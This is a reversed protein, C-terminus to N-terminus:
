LNKQLYIFIVQFGGYDKLCYTELNMRVKVESPQCYSVCEEAAPFLFVSFFAALHSATMTEWRVCWCVDKLTIATRSRGRTMVPDSRPLLLHPNRRAALLLSQNGVETRRLAASLTEFASGSPLLSPPAGWFLDSIQRCALSFGKHQFNM